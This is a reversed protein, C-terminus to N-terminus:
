AEELYKECAKCYVQLDPKGWVNMACGPCTYKVKSKKKQQQEHTQGEEETEVGGSSGAPSKVQTRENSVWPLSISEPLMNFVQEFRGGPIVYDSMKQGVKNGGERGTSSPMLGISEMKQAWEKNHYGTRSPKGFLMQWLHAQEHVLTQCVDIFPVTAMYSPNISIEHTKTNDKIWRDPAFFGATNAQRSFNLIISPLQGEFLHKNFYTYLSQYSAFQEKTPEEMHITSYM